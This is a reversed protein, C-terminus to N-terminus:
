RCVVLDGRAVQLACMFDALVDPLTAGDQWTITRRRGDRIITLTTTAIDPPTVNGPRNYQAALARFGSSNTTAFLTAIPPTVVDGGRELRLDTCPVSIPADGCSRVTYRQTLSDFRSEQRVERGGAVSVNSWLIEAAEGPAPTEVALPASGCASALLVILAISALRDYSTPCRLSM